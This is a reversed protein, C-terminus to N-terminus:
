LKSENEKMARFLPIRIFLQKKAFTKNYKGHAPTCRPVFLRAFPNIALFNAPEVYEPPRQQEITQVRDLYNCPLNATLIRKSLVVFQLLRAITPYPPHHIKQSDLIFSFRYLCSDARSDSKSSVFAADDAYISM